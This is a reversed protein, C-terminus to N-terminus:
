VDAGATFIVKKAAMRARRQKDIWLMVPGSSTGHIVMSGLVVFSTLALLRDFEAFDGRGGAYAMYYFTGLGRIGFFAILGRAQWPIKLGALSGWAALPRVVLLIAVAVAADTWSLAALGGAAITGGFIIMVIVMLMREIQESFGELHSHFGHQRDSARLIIAAAFVAIFGNGHILETVGYTSFTMGVAMLGDETKALEIRPLRFSLWSFVRGAIMGLALGCGLKWIVEYTLWHEWEVSSPATSLAVALVVVPFALGDNLGAETTLAFRAEGGEEEGPPGVQMEAALVPDTPALAAAALLAASWSFGGFSRCLLMIALITLPMAILLLRGTAQWRRWDFSREIRLGSGMLAILIVFETLHEFSRRNFIVDAPPILWSKPYAFYGIMLAIIPLSLPLRRLVLPLWATLLVVIGFGLALAAAVDFSQWM